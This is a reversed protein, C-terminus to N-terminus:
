QFGATPKVKVSSPSCYAVFELQVNALVIVETSSPIMYIKNPTGDVRKWLTGFSQVITNSKLAFLDGEKSENDSPAPPVEQVALDLPHVNPAPAAVLQAALKPAAPMPVPVPVPVAQLQCKWSSPRKCRQCPQAFPLPPCLSVNQMGCNNAQQLHMNQSGAQTLWTRSPM